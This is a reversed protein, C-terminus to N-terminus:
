SEQNEENPYKRRRRNVFAQLVESRKFYLRSAMYHSKLVGSKIWVYVTVRSIKLIRCVERIKILEDQEEEPVDTKPIKRGTSTGNFLESFLEKFQGVSLSYLPLDEHKM